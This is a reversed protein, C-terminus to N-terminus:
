IIKLVEDLYKHNNINLDFRHLSKFGLQIRNKYNKKNKAYKLILESLQKYDQIKFLLGFKGGNLIERPGTPCDSSIIFKKLTLSELLVNPLGEYKSTM